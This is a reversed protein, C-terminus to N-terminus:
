GHDDVELKEIMPDIRAADPPGALIAGCRAVGLSTVLRHIWRRRGDDARPETSWYWGEEAKWKEIEAPRVWCAVVHHSVAPFAQDVGVARLSVSACPVLTSVKPRTGSDRPPGYGQRVAWGEGLVIRWVWNADIKAALTRVGRPADALDIEGLDTGRPLDDLRDPAHVHGCVPDVAYGPPVTMMTEM